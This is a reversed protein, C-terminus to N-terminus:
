LTPMARGWGRIGSSSASPDAVDRASRARRSLTAGDVADVQTPCSISSPTMMSSPITEEPPPRGRRRSRRFRGRPCKSTASRPPCWARSPTASWAPPSSCEAVAGTATASPGSFTTFDRAPRRRSCSASPGSSPTPRASGPGTCGSGPVTLSGDRIGPQAPNGTRSASVSSKPTGAMTSFSAFAIASPSCRAWNPVSPSEMVMLAPVAMPDPMMTAPCSYRPAVKAAPSTVWVTIWAAPSRGQVQPFIPQRSVTADPAPM